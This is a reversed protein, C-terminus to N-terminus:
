YSKFKHGSVEFELDKNFYVVDLSGTIDIFFRGFKDDFYVKGIVPKVYPNPSQVYMEFNLIEVTDGEFVKRGDFFEFGHMLTGNNQNCTAGDSGSVFKWTGKGVGIMLSGEYYIKGNMGNYVRYLM